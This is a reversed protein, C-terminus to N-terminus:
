MLEVLVQGKEVAQGKKVLVTKIQGAVHMLISNEMKMAELILIRDGAVLEQGAEVAVDLVMGPMPARIERVQRVTVNNFGLTDLVQDLEDAIQIHCTKGALEVQFAKTAGAVETLAVAISSADKIVHFHGPSTTIIDAQDIQEQTFRFEFEDAKVRFSKEAM